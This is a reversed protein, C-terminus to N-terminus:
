QPTPREIVQSCGSASLWCSLLSKLGVAVLFQIRGVVVYLKSSARVELFLSGQPCISQLRLGQASSGALSHSSKQGTSVTLDHIHM